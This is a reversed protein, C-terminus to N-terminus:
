RKRRLEVDVRLAPSPAKAATARGQGAVAPAEIVIQLNPIGLPQSSIFGANKIKKKKSNEETSNYSKL